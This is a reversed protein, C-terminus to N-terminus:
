RKFLREDFGYFETSLIHVQSFLHHSPNFLYNHDGQVVASPVKMVLYKRESIFQNGIEQTFHPHPFSKWGSPLDAVDTTLMSISDPFEISVLFYDKPVIGLPLHVALEATCLARSEGTYLMAVGKSNWRGGAKEAGKGSLDNKFAEKSLRYVIM